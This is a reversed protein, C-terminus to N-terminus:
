CISDSSGDGGRMIKKKHQKNKTSRRSGGAQEQEEAMNQADTAEVNQVPLQVPLQETQTEAPRQSPPQQQSQTQKDDDFKCDSVSKLIDINDGEKGICIQTFSIGSVVKKGGNKPLQYEISFSGSGPELKIIAAKFPESYNKLTVYVDIKENLVSPEVRAKNRIIKFNDATKQLVKYLNNYETQYKTPLNNLSKGKNAETLIANMIGIANKYDDNAKNVNKFLINRLKTANPCTMRVVCTAGENIETKSMQINDYDSKQELIYNMKVQKSNSKNTSIGDFSQKVVSNIAGGIPSNNRFISM